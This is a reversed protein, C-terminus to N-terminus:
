HGRAAFASWRRLYEATRRADQQADESAAHVADLQIRYKQEAASVRAKAEEATRQALATYESREFAVSMFFIHSYIFDLSTRTRARTHGPM